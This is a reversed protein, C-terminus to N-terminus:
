PPRLLNPGCWARTSSPVAPPIATEEPPRCRRDRRDHRGSDAVRAPFLSAAWQPGGLALGGRDAERSPHQRNSAHNAGCLCAREREPRTGRSAVVGQYNEWVKGVVSREQLYAPWYDIRRD